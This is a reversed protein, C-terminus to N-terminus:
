RIPLYVIAKRPAGKRRAPEWHPMERVMQELQRREPCQKCPLGAITDLQPAGSTDIQIKLLIAGTKDATFGAAYAQVAEGSCDIPSETELCNKNFLPPTFTMSDPANIEGLTEEVVDAPSVAPKDVSPTGPMLQGNEDLVEYTYYKNRLVDTVDQRVKEDLIDGSPPKIAEISDSYDGAESGESNSPSQCGFVLLCGTIVFTFSFLLFRPFSRVSLAQSKRNYFM